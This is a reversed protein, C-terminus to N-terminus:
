AREPVGGPLFALALAAALFAVGSSALMVARFGALYGDREAAELASRDNAPVDGPVTGGVFRARERQALARTAPSVNARALRGDFGRAFVAAFLIGLLAIAVLGATRAIANNTGSALGSLAPDSSDFV